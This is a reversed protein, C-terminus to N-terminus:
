RLFGWWLRLVEALRLGRLGALGPRLYGPRLYYGLYAKRIFPAWQQEQARVAQAWESWSAAKPGWATGPYPTMLHFSAFTPALRRALALTAQAERPGEGPLGFMFFAATKVGVRRAAEFASAAKELGVGKGAQGLSDESASEVGFHILKLGARKMLRLLEEDVTDVRTQCTWGFALRAKIIGQCLAEVARRRSTMELDIFYISKAGEVEVLEVVEALVQESPKARLPPPYMTKLCFACHFPCGRATEVLALRPGLLDYAYDDLDLLHYAPQDLDELAVPAGPPNAAVKGGAELWALGPVESRPAGQALAIVAGEPEGQIVGAAGTLRLLEAPFLSGHVGSLFLRERPLLGATEVVGDIELNPCQWRDLPSSTLLILDSQRAAARISEPSWKRARGDILRPQHGQGELLAACNLLDLPPWARNYRGRSVKGPFPPNILLINM